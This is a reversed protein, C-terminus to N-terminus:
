NFRTENVEMNARINDADAVPMSISRNRQYLNTPTVTAMPRMAKVHGDVFLFNATGLHGFWMCSGYQTNDACTGTDNVNIWPFKSLEAEVVWITESPHAFISMKLPRIDSTAWAGHGGSATSGQPIRQAFYSIPGGNYRGGAPETGTRTGTTQRNGGSPCALIQNSKAYAQAHNHWDTAGNDGGRVAPMFEDYDQTYQLLALGIQKMNSQCSSRRASERARAFVPFLIAALLAIIAIVILLEILTFGRKDAAKKSPMSGFM